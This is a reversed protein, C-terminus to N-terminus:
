RSVGSTVFDSYIPVRVARDRASLTAHGRNVTWVKGHAIRVREMLEKAASDKSWGDDQGYIVGLRRAREDNIINIPSMHAPCSILFPIWPIQAPVSDLLVRLAQPQTNRLLTRTAFIGGMSVGILTGRRHTSALDAVIADVDRQISNMSPRVKSDKAFGRYEYVVVEDRTSGALSIAVDAMSSASTSNGQLLLVFGVPNIEKSDAVYSYGRLITGDSAHFSLDKRKLPTDPPASENAQAIKIWSDVFSDAISCDRDEQAVVQLATLAVFSAICTRLPTRFRDIGFRSVFSPREFVSPMPQEQQADRKAACMGSSIMARTAGAHCGDDQPHGLQCTAAPRLSRVAPGAGVMRCVQHAQRSSEKPSAGVEDVRSCPSCGCHAHRIALEYAIDAGDKTM